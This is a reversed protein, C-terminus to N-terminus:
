LFSGNRLNVKVHSIHLPQRVHHLVLCFLSLSVFPYKGWIHNTRSQCSCRCASRILPHGFLVPLPPYRLPFSLLKSTVTHKNVGFVTLSSRNSRCCMYCAVSYVCMFYSSCYSNNCHLSPSARFLYLRNETYQSQRCNTSRTRSQLSHSARARAVVISMASVTPTVEHSFLKLSALKWM